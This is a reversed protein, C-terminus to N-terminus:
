GVLGGHENVLEVLSAVTVHDSRYLIVPMPEQAETIDHRRHTERQVEAIAADMEARSGFCHEALIKRGTRQATM